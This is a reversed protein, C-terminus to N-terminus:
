ENKNRMNEIDKRTELYEKRTIEGKAYREDLIIMAADMSEKSDEEENRIILYGIIFFIGIWPLIILVFWLVSNMKRKEADRYVMFAIIFQIVWLVIYWYGLFPIGWWDMMHRDWDMMHWGNGNLVIFPFVAAITAM